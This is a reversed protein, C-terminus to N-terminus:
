YAFFRDFCTGRYLLYLIGNMVKQDNLFINGNIYQPDLNRRLEKKTINKNYVRIEGNHMSGAYPYTLDGQIRISGGHMYDGANKGAGHCFIRGNKMGSGLKEGVTGDVIIKGNQMERGCNEKTNGKVIALGGQMQEGFNDNANGDLFFTGGNMNSCAWYGINGQVRIHANNECGLGDLTESLHELFLHYHETTKSRKAHENILASFFFGAMPFKKEKSFDELYFFSSEIDEKTVEQSVKEATHLVYDYNRSPVIIDAGKKTFEDISQKCADLIKLLGDTKKGCKLIEIDKSSVTSYNETIDKQLNM